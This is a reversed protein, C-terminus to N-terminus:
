RPRAWGTGQGDLRASALRTDALGPSTTQIAYLRGTFDKAQLALYLVGDDAIVLATGTAAAVGHDPFRHEWLRRYDSGLVVLQVGGNTRSSPFTLAYITGDAGLAFAGFYADPGPDLAVRPLRAGACSVPAFHETGGQGRPQAAELFLVDNQHNVLAPVMWRDAPADLVWALEGTAQELGVRLGAPSTEGFLIGGDGLVANAFRARGGQAPSPAVPEGQSAALRFMRGDGGNAVLLGPVGGILQHGRSVDADLTRRWLPAGDRASLAQVLGDPQLSYLRGAPDLLLPRSAPGHFVDDTRLSRAWRQRGDAAVRAAVDSAVFFSGDPGATPASIQAQSPNRWRGRPRGKHDFLFLTAGASVAVRADTIAVQSKVGLSAIPRSWLVRRSRPLPATPTSRRGACEGGPAAPGDGADDARASSALVLGIVLTCAIPLRAAVM